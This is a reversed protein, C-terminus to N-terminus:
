KTEIRGLPAAEAALRARLTSWADKDIALATRLYATTAQQVLLVREPSEDTTHTDHHGNIGGLSHEAGFVTLLDTVNPALRYGDTFWDPGRLTLPSDDDEGAVVMSPTRLQTFDPSMFPFNQRAFSSLDEGGTGTLALLVAAKVRELTFSESASGDTGLVRAGVLASASTAGFSHGAVAVRDHDLRGILGPVGAEITELGEVVRTLDRIRIRWLDPTRPDEPRLGQADLHNPQVVVFGHATWYDVLPLYTDMSAGFAGYGHSFVVVPLETGATPASVRVQLDDGRGPADIRVPRVSVVQAPATSSM